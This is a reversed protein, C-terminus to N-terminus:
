DCSVIAGCVADDVAIEFLFTGFGNVHAEVPNFISDVLVLELETPCWSGCVQAVVWGLVVSAGVMTTDARDVEM